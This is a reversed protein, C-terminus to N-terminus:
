RYREEKLRAAGLPSLRYLPQPTEKHLVDLYGGQLLRQFEQGLVPDERSQPHEEEAILEKHSFWRDGSTLRRVITWPADTRRKRRRAILVGVGAFGAMALCFGIVKAIVWLASM